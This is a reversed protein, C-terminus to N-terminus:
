SWKLHQKFYQAGVWIDRSYNNNATGKDLQAWHAPSDPRTRVNQVGSNYAVLAAALCEAKSWFPFGRSIKEFAIRLVGMAQNIHQWGFPDDGPVIPHFRRDVQFLGFANNNDGWGMHDLLKGFRSERNMLSLILAPPFDWKEGIEVALTKFERASKLNLEANGQFTEEAEKGPSLQVLVENTESPTTM